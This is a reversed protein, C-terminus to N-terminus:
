PWVSLLSGGLHPQGEVLLVQAGDRAAAAAAALGSPGGGIVLVDCFDYDKPSTQASRVTPIRGLGALRGLVRVGEAWLATSITDGEFGTYAKGEFHFALPKTLDIWKGYPEPM